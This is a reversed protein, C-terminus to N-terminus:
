RDLTDLYVAGVCCVTSTANSRLLMKHRNNAGCSQRSLLKRCLFKVIRLVVKTDEASEVTVASLVRANHM